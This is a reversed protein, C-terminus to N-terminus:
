KKTGAVLIRAPVKFIINIMRDIVIWLKFNLHKLLIHTRLHILLKNGFLISKWSQLDCNEYLSKLIEEDFSHLHAHVPTPKNCHICLSYQIKEKYPTTIILKGGPKLISFLNLIFTKPDHVHEIIESAIIFDFTNKRFPLHFADAVIASHHDFPFKKLAKSTNRISIDMSVVDFGAPCFLQAVWAKGCGVDLIRGANGKVQAAIYERTRREIHETGPDRKAFYDSTYADKEYHDIYRFGSKSQNHIETQAELTYGDEPLIVPVNDKVAYRHSCNSCNLETGTDNSTLKGTSCHICKLIDTIKSKKIM